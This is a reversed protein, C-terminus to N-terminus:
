GHGPDLSHSCHWRMMWKCRTDVGTGVDDGELLFGGCTTRGGGLLGNVGVEASGGGCWSLM